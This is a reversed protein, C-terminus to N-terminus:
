FFGKGESFSILLPALLILFVAPLIFLFIPLLLRLGATQVRRELELWRRQRVARAQDILVDKLLHGHGMAQEILAFTMRLQPDSLRAAVERFAEARSRGWLINREFSGLVKKLPGAPLVQVAESWAREVTLGASVGLALLDLLDPVTKLSERPVLRGGADGKRRFARRLLTRAAWWHFLGVSEWVLWGSLAAASLAFLAITM